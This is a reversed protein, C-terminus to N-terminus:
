ITALIVTPKNAVTKSHRCASVILGADNGDVGFINWGLASFKRGPTVVDNDLSIDATNQMIVVTINDLRYRNIVETAAWVLSEEEDNWKSLVYVRGQGNRKKEMAMGVSLLLGSNISKACIVSDETIGYEGNCAIVSDYDSDTVHDAILRILDEM